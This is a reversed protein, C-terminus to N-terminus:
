SEAGLLADLLEPYGVTDLFDRLLGQDTVRAIKTRGNRAVRAVAWVGRGYTAVNNYSGCWGVPRPERSQNTYPPRDALEFRTWGDTEHSTEILFGVEIPDEADIWMVNKSM